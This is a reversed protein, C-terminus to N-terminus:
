PEAIKASWTGATEASATSRELRCAPHVDALRVQVLERVADGRLVQVVADTGFGANGPRVAPPELPPEAAARAAPSASPASPVSM